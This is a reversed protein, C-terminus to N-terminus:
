KIIKYRSNGTSTESSPTSKRETAAVPNARRQTRAANGSEENNDNVGLDIANTVNFNTAKKIEERKITSDLKLDVAEQKVLEIVGKPGYELTDQLQELSGEKLLKDVTEKTYFYEPEVEGLIEEAAEKDEIILFDRLMEKGGATWSLKEIEEFTVNKTEGPTFKRHAGTDPIVYSVSGTDRNTLRIITNKDIM